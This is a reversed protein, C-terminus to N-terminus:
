PPPHRHQGSDPQVLGNIAASSVRRSADALTVARDNRRAARAAAVTVRHYACIRGGIAREERCGAPRWTRSLSRRRDTRPCRCNRHRGASDGQASGPATRASCSSAEEHSRRTARAGSKFSSGGPCSEDGQGEALVKENLVRFGHPRFDDPAARERATSVPRSTEWRDGVSDSVPGTKQRGRVLRPIGHDHRWRWDTAEWGLLDRSPHRNWPTSPRGAAWSLQRRGLTSATARLWDKSSAVASERRGSM